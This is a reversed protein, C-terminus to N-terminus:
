ASSPMRSLLGDRPSPSTYLLCIESYPLDQETIHRVLRTTEGSVAAAVEAGSAGDYGQGYTGGTDTLLRQNWIEVARDTFRTDAIYRDVFDPYLDPNADIARLETESPHIGRLDVSARILQARPSMLTMGEVVTEPEQACSVLLLATLNLAIRPTM